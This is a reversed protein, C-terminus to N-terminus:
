EYILGACDSGKPAHDHKLEKQTGGMIWGPGEDDSVAVHNGQLDIYAADDATTRV